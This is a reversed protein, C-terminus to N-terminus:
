EVHETLQNFTSKQCGYVNFASTFSTLWEKSKVKFKTFRQCNEIYTWNINWGIDKLMRALIEDLGYAREPDNNSLIEFVQRQNLSQFKLSESPIHLASYYKIVSNTDFTNKVAGLRNVLNAAVKSYFDKFFLANKKENFQRM